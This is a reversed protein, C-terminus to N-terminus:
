SNKYPKENWKKCKWNVDNSDTTIKEFISVSGTAVKLSNEKSFNDFDHTLYPAFRLVGNSSVVLVVEGQHKKVIMKGFDQWEKIIKSTDMIWGNPVIAKSNWQEIIAKGENLNGSGLRYWVEEEIKNEDPGYDIESFLKEIHVHLKTGMAEQAFKATQLCRKLPSSYIVTPTLGNKKLYHGVSKSRHTEVLDLDTRSGVRTPIQDKLFTNGHRVLVLTTKSSNNLDSM